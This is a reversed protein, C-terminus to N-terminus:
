ICFRIVIHRSTNFRNRVRVILTDLRHLSFNSNYLAFWTDMFDFNLKVLHARVVLDATLAIIRATDGLSGVFRGVEGAVAAYQSPTPREVRWSDLAEVKEAIAATQAYLERLRRAESPGGPLRM